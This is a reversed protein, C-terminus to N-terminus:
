KKLKQGIEVWEPSDDITAFREASGKYLHVLHLQKPTNLWFRALVELAKVTQREDGRKSVEEYITETAKQKGARQCVEGMRCLFITEINRIDEVKLIEELVVQAQLLKGENALGDFEVHLRRNRERSDQGDHVAVTGIAEASETVFIKYKEGIEEVTYPGLLKRYLNVVDHQNKNRLYHDFVWRYQELAERKKPQDKRVGWHVQGFLSEALGKHCDFDNPYKELLTRFQNEAINFDGQGLSEQATEKLVDLDTKIKLGNWKSIEKEEPLVNFLKGWLIFCVFMVFNLAFIFINFGFFKLWLFVFGLWIAGIILFGKYKKM